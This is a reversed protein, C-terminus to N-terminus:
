EGEPGKHARRPLIKGKYQLTRTFGAAAMKQSFDKSFPIM